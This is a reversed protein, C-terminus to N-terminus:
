LVFPLSLHPLMDHVDRMRTRYCGMGANSQCMVKDYDYMLLTGIGCRTLMEAAVSGVGGMGVVAVVKGRIREYDKVIGMRQLAMLRSYPNSEVVEASMKALKGRAGQMTPAFSMLLRSHLWTSPPVATTSRVNGVGQAPM